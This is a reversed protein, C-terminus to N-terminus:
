VMYKLKLDSVRSLIDLTHPCSGKNREKKKKLSGLFNTEVM